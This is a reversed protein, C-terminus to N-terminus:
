KRSLILAYPDNAVQPFLTEKGTKILVREKSETFQGLFSATLRNMRLTAKVKKQAQTDVAALITGTSSVAL